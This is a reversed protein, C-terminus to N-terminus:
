PNPEFIKVDALNQPRSYWPILTHKLAMGGLDIRKWSKSDLHKIEEPFSEKIKECLAYFFQESFPKISPLAFCVRKDGSNQTAWCLPVEKGFFTKKGGIWILNRWSTFHGAMAIGRNSFIIYHHNNFFYGGWVKTLVYVLLFIMVVPTLLFIPSLFVALQSYFDLTSFQQFADILEGELFLNNITAYLMWVFFCIGLVMLVSLYFVSGGSVKVPM